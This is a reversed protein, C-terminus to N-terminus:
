SRWRYCYGFWGFCDLFHTLIFCILFGFFVCFVFSFHCFEYLCVVAHALEDSNSPDCNDIQNSIFDKFADICDAPENRLSLPGVTNM